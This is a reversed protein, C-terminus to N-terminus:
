LSFKKRLGYHITFRITLDVEDMADKKYAWCTHVKDKRVKWVNGIAGLEYLFSIAGDLDKIEDYQEQNENFAQEIDVYDFTKKKVSALLKLCQRSYEPNKYFSAQNLMENYFDSSYLKKVEKLAHATFCNSNPFENKAHNLFVVLDRPRGLSYDLLYDLPNKGDINDPFLEQFIQKDTYNKYRECSIQIKRFIMKILPHEYKESFSDFLWYLEVSCSTKIKNLNAYDSQMKNLIDSRLLMLIKLKGSCKSSNAYLNYEKAIKILNAIVEESNDGKKKKLEDLDDFILLIDDKKSFSEFLLTEYKEILEFFRKREAEITTASSIKKARKNNNEANVHKTSAKVGVGSSMNKEKGNNVILRTEKFFSDNNYQDVIKKLRAITTFQFKCKYRHKKILQNAIKDLIFWKCLAYSIEENLEGNEVNSLKYIWFDTAQILEANQSKPSKSLVYNALYTKGTGKSGIVLFKEDNKILEEYKNNPDFFLEEFKENQAEMAGDPTGLYLDKLKTNDSM